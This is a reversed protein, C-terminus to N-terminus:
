QQLLYMRSTIHYSTIYAKASHSLTGMVVDMTILPASIGTLRM